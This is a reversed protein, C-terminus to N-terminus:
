IGYIKLGFTLSKFLRPEIIHSAKDILAKVQNIQDSSPQTSIRNFDWHWRSIAKNIEDTDSVNFKQESALLSLLYIFREWKNISRSLFLTVQLTESDLASHYIALLEKAELPARNKILLRAALKKLSIGEERLCTLLKENFQEGEFSNLTMYSQKKLSASEHKLFSHILYLCDHTRLHAIGWIAQKKNAVTAKDSLLAEKYVALADVEFVLSKRVAIERISSHKDFLFRTFSESAFTRKTICIQFAERRIPMFSDKLAQNLYVDDPDEVTRLLKSGELRVLVDDSEFCRSLFRTRSTAEHEKIIDTCLRAVRYDSNLMQSEVLTINEENSLFSKVNNVFEEHNKRGCRKLHELEPLSLLFSEANENVMLQELAFNAAERIQRVWDNARIVLAPIAATDGLEGLKRVARERIFGDYHKSLEILEEVSRNALFKSTTESPQNSSKRFLKKIIEM